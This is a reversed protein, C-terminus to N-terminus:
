SFGNVFAALLWKGKTANYIFGLLDTQGPATSLTPQPLETSFEYGTDWTIAASGGSGQTIQFIIQQGNTPNSPTAMTRSAALTMRFDNGQSADVAITAADTLAVVAPALAGQEVTTAASAAFAPSAIAEALVTGGAVGAVAVGAARRFITRRTLAQGPSPM